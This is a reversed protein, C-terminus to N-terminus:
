DVSHAARPFIAQLKSYNLDLFLTSVLRIFSAVETNRSTGANCAHCDHGSRVWQLVYSVILSGLAAFGAGLALAV